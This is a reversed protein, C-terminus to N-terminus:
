GSSRLEIGLVLTYSLAMQLEVKLNGVDEESM